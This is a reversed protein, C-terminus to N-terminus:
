GGVPATEIDGSHCVPCLTPDTKQIAIHDEGCDSCEVPTYESM